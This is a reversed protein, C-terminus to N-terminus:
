CGSCTLHFCLTIFIVHLREAANSSFLESFLLAFIILTKTSCRPVTALAIYKSCILNDFSEHKSEM